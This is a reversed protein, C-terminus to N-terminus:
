AAAPPAPLESRIIDGALDLAKNRPTGKYPCDVAIPEKLWDVFDAEQHGRLCWEEWLEIEVWLYHSDAQRIDLPQSDRVCHNAYRKQLAAWGPENLCAVRKDRLHKVHVTSIVNFPCSRFCCHGLACGGVRRV